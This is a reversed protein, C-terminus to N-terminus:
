PNRRRARARRLELERMKMLEETVGFGEADLRATWRKLSSLGCGLRRAAECQNGAAERYTEILIDAAEEPSHRVLSGFTSRKKM